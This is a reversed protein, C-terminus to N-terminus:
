NALMETLRLLDGATSYLSLQSVGPRTGREMSLITELLTSTRINPEEPLSSKGDRLRKYSTICDDKDLFLPLQPGKPSGFALRDAVFLPIDSNSLELGYEKAQQVSRQSPVLRYTPSASKSESNMIQAEAKEVESPPPSMRMRGRKLVLPYMVQDLTTGKITGGSSAAAADEYSMYIDTGMTGDKSVYFVPVSNLKEQIASRSLSFQKSEMQMKGPTDQKTIVSDAISMQGKMGFTGALPIVSGAVFILLLLGAIIGVGTGGENDNAMFLRSESRKVPARDELRFVRNKDHHFISNPSHTTTLPHQVRTSLTFSSVDSLTSLLVFVSIFGIFMGSLRAM